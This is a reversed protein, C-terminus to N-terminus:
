RSIFVRGADSRMRLNHSQALMSLALPLDDVPFVGSIRLDAIVPDCDLVQDSYRMLEQGWQQLSMDDAVLLGNRWALQAAVVGEIAGFRDRTFRLQGARVTVHSEVAELHVRVAGEYVALQTEQLLQRVSFATGLAQMRGQATRVWLSRSSRKADTATALYIEGQELHLLCQEAAFRIHLVTNSNLSLQTGDVLQIERREGLATLYTSGVSARQWGWWGLPAAGLLILLGRLVDRRSRPSPRSLTQSALGSPLSGLRSLLRQARRWAREHQPDSRRWSELEAQQASTLPADQMLLLWSAARALVSQAIPEESM